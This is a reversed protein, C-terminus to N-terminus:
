KQVVFRVTQSPVNEGSKSLVLLYLGDPLQSVDLESKALTSLVQRGMSDFVRLTSGGAQGGSIYLSGSVPNPYVHLTARTFEPEVSVVDQDNLVPRIMVSGDIRNPLTSFAQWNGSLRVFIHDTGATQNRDFGIPIPNDTVNVQQIGIYFPGKPIQLTSPELTEPDLIYYGAYGNFGAIYRDAYIPRKLVDTYDATDKLEGIYVKINFIQNAVDTDLHPFHFFVSNLYADKEATFRAVVESLTGPSSRVALGLEATGDDYAFYDSIETRRVVTNNQLLEPFGANREQDQEFSYTTEILLSDKQQSWALFSSLWTDTRLDNTFFHNGPALNRQNQPVVPPVELLTLDNSIIHNENVERLVFRSPEAIALGSFHNRLSIPLQRNIYSTKDVEFHSIPMATYPTLFSPPPSTFAVDTHTGNPIFGHTIRIYDLHWLETMGTRSNINVFRFQFDRHLYEEVLLIFRFSFEPSDKIPYNDSLGTYDTIKKWEGQRNKFELVLSDTERPRPGLGKPQTYFTLYVDDQQRFSSLDIFSSTLFDARGRDGKYPSGFADIGDFTAVGVSPPRVSMTANVFVNRDLWYEEKPHPGPYSFDEFFPIRLPRRIQIHYELEVCTQDENCALLCITDTDIGNIQFVDIDVCFNDLTFSLNTAQTCGGESLTQIPKQSVTLTDLCIRLDTQSPVVVRRLITQSRTASEPKASLSPNTNPGVWEVQSSVIGATCLLWALIVSRFSIATPFSHLM